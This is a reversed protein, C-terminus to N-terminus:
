VFEIWSFIYFYELFNYIFFYLLGPWISQMTLVDWKSPTTTEVNKKLKWFVCFIWSLLFESKKQFKKKTPSYLYETVNRIHCAFLM